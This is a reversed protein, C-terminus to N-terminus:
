RDELLDALWAGVAAPQHFVDWGLTLQYGRSQHVLMKFLTLVAPTGTPDVLIGSRPQGLLTTFSQGASLLTRESKTGGSIRPFFIRQPRCQPTFRDPYLADLDILTKSRNLTAGSMVLPALWPWAAATQNTCAFGRRVAHAMVTGDDVPQLLVSDDTVYHWGASILSMTLTTKGSGCDGILLIGANTGGAPPYLANAHLIYCDAQRVLLFFVRQWFDRQEVLPYESFDPALYGTAQRQGHGITIATQGCSFHFAATTRWVTINGFHTIRSDGEAMRMASTPPETALTIGLLDAGPPQVTTPAIRFLRQWCTTLQQQQEVAPTNVQFILPGIQYTQAYM